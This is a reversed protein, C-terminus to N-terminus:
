DGSQTTSSFRGFLADMRRLEPKEIGAFAQWPQDAEPLPELFLPASDNYTKSLYDNDSSFDALLNLRTEPSYPSDQSKEGPYRRSYKDLLTIALWYRKSGFEPKLYENLYELAAWSLRENAPKKVKYRDDHPLGLRRLFDRELGDQWQSKEFPVLTLNSVDFCAEWPELQDRYHLIRHRLIESAEVVRLVRLNQAYISQAFLDQRRLYFVVQIEFDTFANRISEIQDEYLTMFRESSIVITHTNAYKEAEERITRAITGIDLEGTDRLDRRGRRQDDRMLATPFIHHGVGQLYSKPYLIGNNRLERQNARCFAQISSTGTKPWGIHLVLKM